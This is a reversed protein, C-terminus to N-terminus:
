IEFLERKAMASDLDAERLAHHTELATVSLGPHNLRFPMEHNLAVWFNFFLQATGFYFARVAPSEAGCRDSLRIQTAQHSDRDAM